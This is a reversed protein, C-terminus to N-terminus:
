LEVTINIIKPWIDHLIASCFLGTATTSSPVHPRM